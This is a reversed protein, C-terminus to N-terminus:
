VHKGTRIRALAHYVASTSDLIKQVGLSVPSNRSFKDHRMGMRLYRGVPHARHTTGFMGFGRM